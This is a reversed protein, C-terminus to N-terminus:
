WRQFCHGPQNGFHWICFSSPSPRVLPSKPAPSPPTSTRRRWSSPSPRWGSGTWRGPRTCSGPCRTSGSCSAQMWSGKGCGGSPHHAPPSQLQLPRPRRAPQGRHPRGHLRRHPLPRRRGRGPGPGDPEGAVLVGAGDRLDVGAVAGLSLWGLRMSDFSLGVEYIKQAFVPPKNNTDAVTIRLTATSSLAPFGGDVALVGLEWVAKGTAERDLVAGEAVSVVGSAPHIAFKDQVAPIRYTIKRNYESRDADVAAVSGVVAGPGSGESVWGEFM